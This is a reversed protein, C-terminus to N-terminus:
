CCLTLWTFIVSMVKGRIRNSRCGQVELVRVCVCVCTPRWCTNHYYAFVCACVRPSKVDIHHQNWTITHTHKLPNIATNSITEARQSCHKDWIRNWQVWTVANLVEDARLVYKSCANYDMHRIHVCWVILKDWMKKGDAACSQLLKQRDRTRQLAALIWVFSWRLTQSCRQGGSVRVKSVCSGSM